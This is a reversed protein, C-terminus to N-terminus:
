TFDYTKITHKLDSYYEAESSQELYDVVAVEPASRFLLNRVKDELPPGLHDDEARSQEELVVAAVKYTKDTMRCFAKFYYKAM